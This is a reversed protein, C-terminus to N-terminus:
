LQQDTQSIVSNGQAEPDKRVILHGIGWGLSGWIVDALTFSFRILIAVLIAASAPLYPTLLWTITLERIGLGAPVIILLLSSGGAVAWVWVAQDLSLREGGTAQVLAYVIAGGLFWAIGYLGTWVLGEFLRLNWNRSHPQWKFALVVGAGGVLIAGLVRAFWPLERVGIIALSGAALILMLWEIFNAGVIVRGAVKTNGAYMTSRGLWHWVGGPLRRMIITRAYIIVDQWGGKHHFSLLRIWVVVQTILSLLYLVMTALIPIWYGSIDISRIQIGSYVLLAVLYVMAGASVLYGIRRWRTQTQNLFDAWREIKEIM